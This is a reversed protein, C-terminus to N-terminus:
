IVTYVCTSVMVVVVVSNSMNADNRQGRSVGYTHVYM